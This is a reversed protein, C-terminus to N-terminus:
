SELSNEKLYMMLTSLNCLISELDLFIAFICIQVWELTTEDMLNNQKTKCLTYLSLSLTIIHIKSDISYIVAEYDTIKRALRRM